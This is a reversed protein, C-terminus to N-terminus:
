EVPHDRSEPDSYLDLYAPLKCCLSSTSVVHMERMSRTQDRKMGIVIDDSGMGGIGSSRSSLGRM